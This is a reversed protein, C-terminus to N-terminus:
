DNLLKGEWKRQKLRSYMEDASPFNLVDDKTKPVQRYRVTMLFITDLTSLDTYKTLVILRRCILKSNPLMNKKLGYVLAKCLEHIIMLEQDQASGDAYAEATVRAHKEFTFIPYRTELFNCTDYSLMERKYSFEEESSESWFPKVTMTPNLAKIQNNYKEIIPGFRRNDNYRELWNTLRKFYKLLM